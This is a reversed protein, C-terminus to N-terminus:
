VQRIQNVEKVPTNPRNSTESKGQVLESRSKGAIMDHFTPVAGNGELWYIKKGHASAFYIESKTSSGIYGNKNLVLICDSMSIKEKHLSDLRVKLSLAEPNNEDHYEERVFTGVSLVIWGAKTLESNTSAFVEPFKTSGCLTVIGKM